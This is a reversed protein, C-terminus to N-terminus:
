NESKEENGTKADKKPSAKSKRTLTRFVISGLALVVTGVTNILWDSSSAGQGSRQGGGRMGRGSGSGQGFPGTGNGEPM